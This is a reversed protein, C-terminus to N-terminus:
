APARAVCARVRAPARPPEPLSDVWAHVADWDLVPMDDRDLLNAHVDFAPAGGAEVKAPAPVRAAADAESRNGALKRLLGLM